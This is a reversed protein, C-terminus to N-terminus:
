TLSWVIACAITLALVLLEAPHAGTLTDIIRRLSV